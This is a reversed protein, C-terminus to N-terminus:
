QDDEKRQFLASIRHRTWQLTAAMFGLLIFAVFPENTAKMTIPLIDVTVGWLTGTGAIERLASIICIVLGFGLSSGLADLITPIPHVVPSYGISRSYVMNVAMLPIFLHLDAFLQASVYNQMVYATGVLLLSALLIYLAPRLWKPLWKGSFATFLSLPIMVVASCIALAVGNKLSTGAAIIPCLGMAQILVINNTIANEVFLQTSHWLHRRANNKKNM